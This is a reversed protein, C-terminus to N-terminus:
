RLHRFLPLHPIAFGELEPAFVSSFVLSRTVGGETGDQDRDYAKRLVVEGAGLIENRDIAFMAFTAGM